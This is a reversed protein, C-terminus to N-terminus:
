NQTFLPMPTMVNHEPPIIGKKYESLFNEGSLFPCLKKAKKISFQHTNKYFIKLMLVRNMKYVLKHNFLDFVSWLARMNSFWFAMRTSHSIRWYYKKLGYDRTPNEIKYRGSYISFIFKPVLICQLSQSFWHIKLYM